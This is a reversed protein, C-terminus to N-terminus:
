HIAGVQEYLAIHHGALFRLAIRSLFFNDLFSHLDPMDDSASRGPELTGGRKAASRHLSAKYEEM